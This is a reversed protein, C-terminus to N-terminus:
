FNECSYDVSISEENPIVCKLDFIIIKMYSLSGYIIVVWLKIVLTTAMLYQKVLNIYADKMSHTNYIFIIKYKILKVNKLMM